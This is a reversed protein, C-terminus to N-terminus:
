VNRAKKVSMRSKRAMYEDVKRKRAVKKVLNKKIKKKAALVPDIIKLQKREARRQNRVNNLHVEIKQREEYFLASGVKKEIKDMIDLAHLKLDQNLEVNSVAIFPRLVYNLNEKIYEMPIDSSEIWLLLFTFVLKRNYVSAYHFDRAVFTLKRLLKDAEEKTEAKSQLILFIRFLNQIILLGHEESVSVKSRITRVMKYSIKVLIDHHKLPDASASLLTALLRCAAKKMWSNEKSYCCMIFQLYLREDLMMDKGYRAIIRNVSNSCAYVVSWESIQEPNEEPLMTEEEEEKLEGDNVDEDDIVSGDEHEEEPEEVNKSNLSVFLKIESELISTFKKVYKYGDSSSDESFSETFIGGLLVAILKTKPNSGLKVSMDLLQQFMGLNTEYIQGILQKMLEFVMKKCRSSSENILQLSVSMFILQMYEGIVEAPFKVLIGFLFELLSARGEEITYSLNKVIFNIHQTLRTKSMPYNLLYLVLTQCCLERVQEIASTVMLEFLYDMLDYVEPTKIKMMVVAKILSFNYGINSSVLDTKIMQLLSSIQTDSFKIDDEQKSNQLILALSKLCAQKLDSKAAAIRTLIKLVKSCVQNKVAPKLRKKTILHNLTKLSYVTIATTTFSQVVDQKKGGEIHDVLVTVFTELMEIQIERKKSSSYLLSFGFEKLLVSNVRFHNTDAKLQEDLRAFTQVTFADKEKPSRFEQYTKSDKDFLHSKETMLEFALLLIDVTEINENSNLGITMRRFIETFHQKFASNSKMNMYEVVLRDLLKKFCNLDVTRSMAEILDYIKAQYNSAESIKKVDADVANFLCRYSVEIIESTVNEDDMISITSPFLAHVLQNLTFLLIYLEYGKTLATKLQKIVFLFYDKKLVTECIGILAKRVDTRLEENGKNKLLQCLKSLIRPIEIEKKAKPLFTLLNAYGVYLSIYRETTSILNYLKPLIFSSLPAQKSPKETEDEDEDIEGDLNDKEM